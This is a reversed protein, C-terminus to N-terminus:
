YPPGFYVGRVDDPALNPVYLQLCGPTASISRGAPPRAGMLLVSRDHGDLPQQSAAGEWAYVDVKLEVICLHDMRANFRQSVALQARAVDIVPQKV